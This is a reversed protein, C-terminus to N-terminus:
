RWRNPQVTNTILHSIRGARQSGQEPGWVAATGSRSRRRGGRGNTRRNTRGRVPMRGRPGTYPRQPWGRGFGPGFGFGFRAPRAVLDSIDYVRTMMKAPLSDKTAIIIIGHEVVYGLEAFSGSVAMLLIELGTRLRIGSVGDIRIPTDREIDANESLDRWLVVIRLPPGTSNRLLEIAESFTTHLTLASLDVTQKLQNYLTTDGRRIRAVRSHSYKPSVKVSKEQYSIKEAALVDTNCFGCMSVLLVIATSIWVKKANM